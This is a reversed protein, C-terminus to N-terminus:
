LALRWDIFPRVQEENCIICSCKEKHKEFCGVKNTLYSVYIESNWSTDFDIISEFSMHIIWDMAMDRFMVFETLKTIDKTKLYENALGDLKDMINKLIDHTM